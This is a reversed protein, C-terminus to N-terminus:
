ARKKWNKEGQLVIKLVKHWGTLVSWKLVYGIHLFLTIQLPRKAIVITICVLIEKCASGFSTLLCPFLSHYALIYVFWESKALGFLYMSGVPFLVFFMTYLSTKSPHFLNIIWSEKLYKVTTFETKSIFLLTMVWGHTRMKKLNSLNQSNRDFTTCRWTTDEEAPKHWTALNSSM